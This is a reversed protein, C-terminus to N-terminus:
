ASEPLALGKERKEVHREEKLIPLLVSYLTDAFALLLDVDQESNFLNTERSDICLYGLIDQQENYSPFDNVRGILMKRIPVVLTSRYDLKEQKLNSINTNQYGPHTIIDGTIFHPRDRVEKILKEFDTNKTIWHTRSKDRDKANLGTDRMITRVRFERINESHVFDILKICARCMSGKATTFTAVLAELGQKLSTFMQERTNDTYWLFWTDRLYHYSRHMHGFSASFSKKIKDDLEERKRKAVIAVRRHKKEITNLKNQWRLDDRLRLFVLLLIIVFFYSLVLIFWFGLEKIVFAFVLALVSSFSGLVNIWQLTDLKKEAM